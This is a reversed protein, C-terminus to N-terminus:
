NLKQKTKFYGYIKSQFQWINLEMLFHCKQKPIPMSIDQKHMATEALFQM